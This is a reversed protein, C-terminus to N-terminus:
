GKGEAVSMVPRACAFERVSSATVASALIRGSNLEAQAALMLETVQRSNPKGLLFGQVLDCNLRKLAHLQAENEVGEAIVSMGLTHAMGIIHEVLTQDAKSNALGKIFLRDIKLTDLTLQRLRGLSSYGTGFDDISIRIGYERLERLHREALSIDNVLASETVELEIADAPTYHQALTLITTRAFDERALEISSVNVAIAGPLLGRSRWDSAQRCAEHLVLSGLQVILGTAEALPIFHSPPVLGAVPDNWRLLAELGGLSGDLRFIPQYNLQLERNEIARHLRKEARQRESAEAFSETSYVLYDNRGVRKVRRMATEGSALIAAGEAGHAPYRSIGISVSVTVMLGDVELPRLFHKLIERAVEEALKGDKEEEPWLIVFQDGGVRALTGQPKVISGIRATAASLLKDGIEQGHRDNVDKFHDLDLYLCAFEGAREGNGGMLGAMMELLWTRNGLGTLGDFYARRLLEDRELYRGTWERLKRMRSICGTVLFIDCFAVWGVQEAWRGISVVDVGSISWPTLWLRLGQDVALTLSAAMLLQWDVYLALFALSGFIHFHAAMRGGTVEILLSSMLMQAVGAALRAVQRGQAMRMVVVPLLTLAGGYWIALQIHDGHWPWGAPRGWGALGLVAMWQVWMLYRFYTDVRKRFRSLQRELEEKVEVSDAMFGGLGIARGLWDAAPGAEVAGWTPGGKRGKAEVEFQEGGEVGAGAMLVAKAQREGSETLPRYVYRGPTGSLLEGVITDAVTGLAGTKDSATNLARNGEM